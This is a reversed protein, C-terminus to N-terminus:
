VCVYGGTLGFLLRLSGCWVWGWECGWVVDVLALVGGGGWVWGDSGGWGSVAVVM